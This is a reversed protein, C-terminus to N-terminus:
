IEDHLLHMVVDARPSYGCLCVKSLKHYEVLSHFGGLFHILYPM